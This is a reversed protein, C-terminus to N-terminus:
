ANVGVEMKMEADWLATSLRQLMKDIDEVDHVLERTSPVGAVGNHRAEIWMEIHDDVDFSASYAKANEVFNHADVTVIIDEGAPSYTELEVTGDEHETVSWDLRECVKRYVEIM